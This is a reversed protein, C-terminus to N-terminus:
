MICDNRTSTNRGLLGFQEQPLRCQCGRHSRCKKGTYVGWCFVFRQVTTDVRRSEVRGMKPTQFNQGSIPDSKRCQPRTTKTAEGRLKCRDMRAWDSAQQVLACHFLMLRSECSEACGDIDRPFAEHGASRRAVFANRFTCDCCICSRDLGNEKSQHVQHCRQYSCGRFARRLCKHQRATLCTRGLM